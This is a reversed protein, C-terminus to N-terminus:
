LVARAAACDAGIQAKLADLGAFKMEPRLFSVLQVRLNQGYLDGNFDFLHVELLEQAGGVTPRNGINAVAPFFGTKGIIEVLVAYVGFRPRQAAGLAINATPFGLRRGRQDGQEVVGMLEWHRGLAQYVKELDGQALNHRIRSSSWLSQTGDRLPPIESFGLKRATLLQHLLATNGGRQHGFTFDHGAVAHSIHLTDGLVQNVFDAATMQAFAPTFPIEFLVGVGLAPLLSHKLPQPTLRFPPSDPLFLARPHPEFTVVGFPTGAAHALQKAKALVAQHGKHLGDFNGLAVVAHHAAAPPPTALSNYYLM